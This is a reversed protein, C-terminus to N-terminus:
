IWFLMRGYLPNMDSGNKIDHSYIKIFHSKTNTGYILNQVYHYLLLYNRCLEQILIISVIGILKWLDLGNGYMIAPLLGALQLGISNSFSYSSMNENSM